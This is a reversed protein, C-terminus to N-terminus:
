IPLFNSIWRGRGAITVAMWLVLTSAAYVGARVRPGPMGEWAVKHRRLAMEFAVTAAVAVGMIIMKVQFTGNLSRRPEAILMLIGTITSLIIGAWFWPLFRRARDALTPGAAGWLRQAIMLVSSLVMAITLIHVTQLLPITWHARRMMGSLPLSSLWISLERM